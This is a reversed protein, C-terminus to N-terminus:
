REAGEHLAQLSLAFPHGLATKPFVDQFFLLRASVGHGDGYSEAEPESM